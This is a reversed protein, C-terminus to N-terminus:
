HQPSCPTMCNSTGSGVIHQVLLEINSNLRDMTSSWRGIAQVFENDTAELRQLLRRKIDLDEQAITDTSLKRKLREKRYGSLTADLRQRRGIVMEASAVDEAVGDGGPMSSSAADTVSSVSEGDEVAVDGTEIGEAIAHTAPSEGWISECLEFFLLVVRGHGSRRGSVVAQRFRIRIAKLKATLQATFM